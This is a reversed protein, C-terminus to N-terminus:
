MIKLPWSEKVQYEVGEKATKSELLCFENINWFISTLPIASLPKLVKRALTLHPRYPKTDLSLKCDLALGNLESVLQSLEQPINSPALYAIKPKQWWDLYDLSLAFPEVCFHDAGRILAARTEEDVNGLFALTIHFNKDEVWRGTDLQLQKSFAQIESRVKEDPWLGFFMRAM